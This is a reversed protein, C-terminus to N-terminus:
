RLLNRLIAIEDKDVKMIVNDNMAQDKFNNNLSFETKEKKRLILIENRLIDM